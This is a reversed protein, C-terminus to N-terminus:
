GPDGNDSLIQAAGGVGRRFADDFKIGRAQWRHPRSRWDIRWETTWGLESDNWVLRGVLVADAGPVAVRSALTAPPMTALAADDLHAEALAAADPLAITMGQRAAAALLADRQLDSQKADSTVVYKRAGQEMEVFVALVPRQSPWPKLGLAKLLDDIRDDDFDVILDYPRDRTGQEDRIPTGSMQDHYHFASVYDGAHSKYAALRRDDALKLAGSVKILVDELCAGFGISRNPEGQGTVTTQARYLETAAAAMALTCCTLPIALSMSIIAAMAGSRTWHRPGGARNRDLVIM